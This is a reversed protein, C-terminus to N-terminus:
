YLFSTHESCKANTYIKYVTHLLHNFDNNYMFIIIHSLTNLIHFICMHVYVYMYM